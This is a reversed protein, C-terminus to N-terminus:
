REKIYCRVHVTMNRQVVYVGSGGVRSQSLYLPLSPLDWRHECARAQIRNIGRRMEVEQNFKVTVFVSVLLDGSNRSYRFNLKLCVFIFSETFTAICWWIGIHLNM